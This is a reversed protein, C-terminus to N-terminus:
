EVFVTDYDVTKKVPPAYFIFQNNNQERPLDPEMNKIVQSMDRAVSAITKLNAESLKEATIGDLANELATRAKGTVRTRVQDNAVKLEQNPNDYSATSTADNKYASISSPSIGFLESLEKSRAGTISEEAIIKKIPMPVETKGIGRGKNIDVVKSTEEIKELEKDFTEDDVIMLPM